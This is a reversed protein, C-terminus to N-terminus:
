AVRRRTSGPPPTIRADGVACYVLLANKLEAMAPKGIAALMESEAIAIAKRASRMLRRGKATFRVIKARRDSPDKKREVLGMAECDDVLEGMAQKTLQSRAALETLRTGEYDLNRPVTLHAIRLGEYGDVIMLQLVRQEFRRSATIMLRGVNLRRWEENGGTAETKDVPRSKM